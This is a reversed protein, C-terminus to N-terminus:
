ALGAPCIWPLLGTLNQPGGKGGTAMGRPLPFPRVGECPLLVSAASHGVPEGGGPATSPPTVPGAREVGSRPRVAGQVPAVAPYLRSPRPPPAAAPRSPNSTRWGVLTPKERPRTSPREATPSGEARLHAFLRRLPGCWLPPGPPCLNAQAPKINDSPFRDAWPESARRGSAMKVLRWGCSVVDVVRSHSTDYSSGGPLVAPLAHRDGANAPSMAILSGRPSVAAEGAALVACPRHRSGDHLTGMERRPVSPSAALGRRVTGGGPDHVGLAVEVRTAAGLQEAFESCDLGGAQCMSIMCRDEREATHFILNDDTTNM